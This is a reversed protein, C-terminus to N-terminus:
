KGARFIHNGPQDARAKVKLVTESGAPISAIPRFVLVWSRTWNAM